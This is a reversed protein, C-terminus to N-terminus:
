LPALPGMPRHWPSEPGTQQQLMQHEEQRKLEAAQREELAVAEDIAQQCRDILETYQVLELQNTMQLIDTWLTSNGSVQSTDFSYILRIMSKTTDQSIDADLTPIATETPAMVFWNAVFPCRPEMILRHCPVGFLSMDTPFKSLLDADTLLNLLNAGVPGKKISLTPPTFIPGSVVVRSFVRQALLAAQKAALRSLLAPYKEFRSLREQTLIDPRGLLVDVSSDSLEDIARSSAAATASICLDPSAFYCHRVFSNHCISKLDDIQLSKAASFLDLWIEPSASADLDSPLIDDYIYSILLDMLQEPFSEVSRLLLQPARAALIAKHLKRLSGDRLTLSFDSLNQRQNLYSSLCAPPTAPPPVAFEVAWVTKENLAVFYRSRKEDLTIAQHWEPVWNDRKILEKGLCLTVFRNHAKDFYQHLNTYRDDCGNFASHVFIINGHSDVVWFPNYGIDALMPPGSRRQNVGDQPHLGTGVVPVFASAGKEKVLLQNNDNLYISDDPAVHFPYGPKDFSALEVSILRNDEECILEYIKSEICTFARNQSNFCYRIGRTQKLDSTLPIVASLDAPMRWSGYKELMIISGSKDVWMKIIERMANPAPVRTESLLAKPASPLALVVELKARPKSSESVDKRWIVRKNAGLIFLFNGDPSLRLADV